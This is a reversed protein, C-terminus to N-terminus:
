IHRWGDPNPNLHGCVLPPPKWPLMMVMYSDALRHMDLCDPLLLHDEADTVVLPHHVGVLHRPTGQHLCVVDDTSQPLEQLSNVMSLMVQQRILLYEMLQSMDEWNLQGSLALTESWFSCGAM